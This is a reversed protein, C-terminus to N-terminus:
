SLVFYWVLIGALVLLTLILCGKRRKRKSGSDVVEGVVEAVDIAAGALDVLGDVV